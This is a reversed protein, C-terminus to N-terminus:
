VWFLIVARPEAVVQDPSLMNGPEEPAKRAFPAFGLDRSLLFFKYALARSYIDQGELENFTHAPTPLSILTFSLKTNTLKKIM